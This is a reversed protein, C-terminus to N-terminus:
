LKIVESIYTSLADMFLKRRARAIPLSEGNMVCNGELVTDVYKMHVLHGKNIRFFGHSALMNEVEKMNGRCTFIERKTHYFLTHSQSEVYYIYNVDMKKLGGKIPIIIFCTKRSKIKEVAKNLKQSFTFYTVPKLIYDLADVEYGRIAYQTMNTIFFIIVESDQQRIEEAASMGDMFKMQIDMLIIEFQAKYARAIEDGDRYVTLEFQEGSEAQYQELYKELKDIYIDEDEVIAIRIM